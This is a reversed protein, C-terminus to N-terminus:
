ESFRNLFDVMKLIQMKIVEAAERNDWDHQVASVDGPTPM